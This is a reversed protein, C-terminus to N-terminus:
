RYLEYYFAAVYNPSLFFIQFVTAMYHLHNVYKGGLKNADVDFSIEHFRLYIENLDSPFLHFILIVLLVIITTGTDRYLVNFAVTSNCKSLNQVLCM